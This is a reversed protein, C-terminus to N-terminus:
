AGLYGEFLRAAEALETVPDGVPAFEMGWYGSYGAAMIAPVARAYDPLLHPAPLGRATSAAVHLHGILPLQRPQSVARPAALIASGLLGAFQRRGITMRAM